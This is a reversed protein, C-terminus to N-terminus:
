ALNGNAERRKEVAQAERELLTRKRDVGWRYGSLAGDGRVVRHCPILVAIRNAACASAVARVSKPTGIRAALEAYSTRAAPPIARLATWVRHQFATGRIDLPLDAADSGAEVLAVVRAVIQGFAADGPILEAQAFRDQFNRMLADADDGLDVACIGHTSAAVLIEGLGCTGVAFRITEGRGGQRWRRPPMGLMADAQAYFRSAAGFGADYLAETVSRAPTLGRRLRAARVSAAYQGPNIGAVARFVRHFHHPSLGSPAALAALPPVPDENEIRRCAAIVADHHPHLGRLHPRCRRCPRFGAAEAQAPDPYFAINERRAPRSPCSPLCYIGTSRVAYVFRGDAGSDRQDVAEHRAADTLDPGTSERMEMVGEM